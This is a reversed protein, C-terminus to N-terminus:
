ILAVMLEARHRALAIPGARCEHDPRVVAAAAGAPADLAPPPLTAVLPAVFSSPTHSTAGTAPLTGIVHQECCDRARLERTADADHESHRDGACCPADTIMQMSPCYVYRAGGRLVGVLVVLAVVLSAVRASEHRLRHM